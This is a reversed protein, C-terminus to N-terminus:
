EEYYIRDTLWRVFSKFQEVDKENYGYESSDANIINKERMQAPRYWKKEPTIRFETDYDWQPNICMEWSLQGKYKYQIEKGEAFAQIIPLLEKAKVRNM